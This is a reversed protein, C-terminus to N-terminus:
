LGRIDWDIKCFLKSNLSNIEIWIMAIFILIRDMTVVFFRWPVIFKLLSILILPITLIITNLTYIIISLIGKVPCPLFYLM